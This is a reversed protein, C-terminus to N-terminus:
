HNNAIPLALIQPVLRISYANSKLHGRSVARAIMGQANENAWEKGLGCIGDIAKKNTASGNWDWEDM